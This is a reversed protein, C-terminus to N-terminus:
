GLSKEAIYGNKWLQNIVNLTVEPMVSYKSYMIDSIELRTYSKQSTLALIKDVKGDIKESINLKEGGYESILFSSDGDKEIRFYDYLKIIEDNSVENIMYKDILYQLKENFDTADQFYVKEFIHIGNPNNENSRVPTFLYVSKECFNVCFGDIASITGADTKKNNVNGEIYAHGSSVFGQFGPAEKYQPILEVKLLELPTFADFIQKAMDISTVSFRHITAPSSDIKSIIERTREVNRTAAATTIQPIVGFVKYYEDEFKEYDPNDLAETAYYLMGTAGADGFRNKIVSLAERFLKANEDNYRFIESLKKAGLGCFECGISCGRAIEFCFLSHILSLNTGGLAGNCRNIQRKRWKSVKEDRPNCIEERLKNRLYLKNMYFQRYRFFSEPVLELYKEPNSPLSSMAEMRKENASVCFAFEVDMASIISFKHKKVFAEVDSLALDYEEKLFTMLEAARKMEAVLLKIRNIEKESLEANSKKCLAIEHENM